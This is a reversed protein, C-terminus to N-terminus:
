CKRFKPHWNDHIWSFFHCFRMKSSGITWIYWNAIGIDMYLNINCPENHIETEYPNHSNSQTALQFLNFVIMKTRDDNWIHWSWINTEYEVYVYLKFMNKWLSINFSVKTIIIKPITKPLKALQFNITQCWSM